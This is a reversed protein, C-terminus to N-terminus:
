FARTDGMFTVVSDGLKVNAAEGAGEEMSLSARNKAGPSRRGAPNHAPRTDRRTLNLERNLSEDRQGEVPNGNIGTLRARM